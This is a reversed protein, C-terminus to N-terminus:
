TSVVLLKKKRCKKKSNSKPAIPGDILFTTDIKMDQLM